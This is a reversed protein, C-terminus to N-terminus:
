CNVIKGKREKEQATRKECDLSKETQSDEKQHEQHLQWVADRNYMLLLKKDQGMALLAETGGAGLM